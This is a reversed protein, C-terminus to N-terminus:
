PLEERSAGKFRVSAITLNEWAVAEGVMIQGPLARELFGAMAAEPCGANPSAAKRRGRGKKSGERPRFLFAVFAKEPM